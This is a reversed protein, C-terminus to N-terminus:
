VGTARVTKRIPLVCARVDVGFIYNTNSANASPTKKTWEKKINKAGKLPESSLQQVGTARVTKHISLVCAHVNVGFIYNTNSANVSPNKKTWEKKM